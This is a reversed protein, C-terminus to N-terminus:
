PSGPPLSRAIAQALLGIEASWAAVVGAPTGPAARRVEFREAVGPAGESSRVLWRAALLAEGARAGSMDDLQVFVTVSRGGRPPGDATVWARPLDQGLDQVLTRTVGSRVSEVWRDNELIESENPRGQLVVQPRDIADPVGQVVLRVDGDYDAIAGGASVADLQYFRERSPGACATLGMVFLLLALRRRRARGNPALSDCRIM